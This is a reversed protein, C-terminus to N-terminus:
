NSVNGNKNNLLARHHYIAKNLENQKAILETSLENDIAFIENDM